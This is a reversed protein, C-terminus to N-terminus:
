GPMKYMEPQRNWSGVFAVLESIIHVKNVWLSEQKMYNTQWINLFYSDTTAEKDLEESERQWLLDRLLLRHALIIFEQLNSWM